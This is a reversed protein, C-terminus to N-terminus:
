GIVRVHNGCQSGRAVEADLDRGRRGRVEADLRGVDGGDVLVVRSGKGVRAIWQQGETWRGRLKHRAVRVGRTEELKLGRSGVPRSGLWKLM